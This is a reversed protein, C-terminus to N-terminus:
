RNAEAFMRDLVADTALSLALFGVFAPGVWTWEVLTPSRRRPARPAAHLARAVPPRRSSGSRRSPGSPATTRSSGSGGNVLLGFLILAADTYDPEVGPPVEVGLSLAAAFVLLYVPGDRFQSVFLALPSTAETRRLANPGYRALRASAEESRLDEEDGDLLELARDSSVAHWAEKM